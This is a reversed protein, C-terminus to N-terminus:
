ENDIYLLIMQDKIVHVRSDGCDYKIFIDFAECDYETFPEDGWSATCFNMLYLDYEDLLDDFELSDRFWDEIEEMDNLFEKTWDRSFGIQNFLDGLNKGKRAALLITASASSSNTVFGELIKLIRLKKVCM